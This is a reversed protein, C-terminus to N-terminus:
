NNNGNVLEKALEQTKLVTLLINDNIETQAYTNLKDVILSAKSKMEEDTKFEEGNSAETLVKKLRTIEENLYTKLEVANDTFSTIYHSLLQKQEESLDKSYKENFKETFTDLILNDMFTHSPQPEPSKCMNEVISSELM